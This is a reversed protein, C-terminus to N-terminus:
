SGAKMKMVAIKQPEVIKSDMEAYGIVGVAHQTAYKENLVQVEMQQAFKLYLGSMDGYAITIKEAEMDPMSDSIYIPKGLLMHGFSGTIDRNLIYNGETDKLKKLSNRTKKSMIWCANAQYRDPIMDQLDILEDSTLAAAAAATVINKSECVGQMKGIAGLLLTKELFESFASAVKSVIFSLLDFDTRNLLSKSVLTLAGVIFNTLTITTFKGSHETLEQMDEVFAAQVKDTTEDYLPFTLDGGVNYTTVKSYIPCIEKIEEIIKQAITNPILSGGSSSAVGMARTEGRVFSLFAKKDDIARQEESESSEGSHIRELSEAREAAQITQDLARIEDELAEFNGNEEDTFARKETEAKKLMEDLQDIKQNKQEILEKLKM